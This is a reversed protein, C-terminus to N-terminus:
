VIRGQAPINRTAIGPFQFRIHIQQAGFASKITGRRPIGDPSDGHFGFQKFGDSFAFRHNIEKGAVLRTGGIVHVGGRFGSQGIGGTVGVAGVHPIANVPRRGHELVAITGFCGFFHVFENKGM